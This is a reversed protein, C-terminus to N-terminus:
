WIQLRAWITKSSDVSCHNVHGQVVGLRLDLDNMKTGISKKHSKKYATLLLQELVCQKAVICLTVSSLCVSALRDCLCPNNGAPVGPFPIKVTPIANGHVSTRQDNTVSKITFVGRSLGLECNVAQRSTQYRQLIDLHPLNHWGLQSKPM